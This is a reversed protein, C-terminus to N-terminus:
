FLNPWILILKIESYARFCNIFYVEKSTKLNAEMPYSDMFFGWGDFATNCQIKWNASKYLMTQNDWILEFNSYSGIIFDQPRRRDTTTKWRFNDVILTWRRNSIEKEM